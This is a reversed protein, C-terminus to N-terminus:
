VLVTNEDGADDRSSILYRGDATWVAPRHLRDRQQTITRAPLDGDLEQVWVNLVGKEPALYSIWCGDPSLSVSIIEPYRFLVECPILPTFTSGVVPCGLFM